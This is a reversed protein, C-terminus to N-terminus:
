PKPPNVCLNDKLPEKQISLLYNVLDNIQQDDMAGAYRVSWSPMDTGTRGQAITNIVDDLGKILPHGYKSGGCVTQLNPVAVVNGNYVNMGGHLAPGHCRQCNFGIQNAEFVPAGPLSTLRGREISQALLDRTDNANTVNERLFVVPIAIAMIVVFVLGWAYLRTRIPEELDVDSPGPRMASPIDPGGAARRPRRLAALSAGALILVALGSVIGILFAKGASLAGVLTVHGV